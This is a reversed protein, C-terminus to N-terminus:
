SNRVRTTNNSRHLMNQNDTQFCLNYISFKSKNSYTLCWVREIDPNGNVMGTRVLDGVECSVQQGVEKAVM